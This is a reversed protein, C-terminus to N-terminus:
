IVSWLMVFKIKEQLQYSINKLARNLANITFSMNLPDNTDEMQQLLNKNELITKQRGKKGESINESSHIKVFTNVLMKAKERDTVATIDGDNLIPYGSVRKIGNTRKITAWVKSIATEKGISKCFSRWYDRNANKIVRRVNAQM